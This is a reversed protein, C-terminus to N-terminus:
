SSFSASDEKMIQIPAITQPKDVYIPKDVFSIDNVSVEKGDLKITTLNTFEVDKYTRNNYEIFRIKENLEELIEELSDGGKVLKNLVQHNVKIKCNFDSM